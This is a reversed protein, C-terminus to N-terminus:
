GVPVASVGPGTDPLARRLDVMWRDFLLRYDAARRAYPADAEVEARVGVGNGRSQLKVVARHPLWALPTLRGLIRGFRSASRRAHVEGPQAGTVRMGRSRLFANVAIQLEGVSGAATWGDSAREM